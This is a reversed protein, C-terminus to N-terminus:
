PYEVLLHLQEEESTFHANVSLLKKERHDFTLVLEKLSGTPYTREDLTLAKRFYPLFLDLDKGIYITQHGNVKKDFRREDELFAFWTEPIVDEKLPTNEVLPKKGLYTRREEPLCIVRTDQSKLPDEYHFDRLIKVTKGEEVTLQDRATISYDLLNKDARRRGHIEINQQKEGPSLLNKRAKEVLSVSRTMPSVTLLFCLILVIFKVIKKM